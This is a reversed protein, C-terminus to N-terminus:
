DKKHVTRLTERLKEKYDCHAQRLDNLPCQNCEFEACSMHRCPSNDEAAILADQISRYEEASVTVVPIKEIKM